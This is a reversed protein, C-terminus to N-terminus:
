ATAARVPSRPPVGALTRAIIYGFTMNAGNNAGNAPPLGAWMSNSDLGCAYLGPIPENQQDLVEGTVSTRMGLTSSIEGAIIELAYFPGNEIPALNPHPKNSHDGLYRDFGGDGKGMPDGQGARAAANAAEVTKLLNTENIGITSALAVLTPARQVYGQRVLRKLRIGHPYILGLGWKHIFKADCIIWAPLSGTERMKQGVFLTAENTFREGNRNIVIVGPRGLDIIHPVPEITGDKQRYRSLVTWVANDANDSQLTAGARSGINIGDGTNGDPVLPMTQEVRPYYQKRMMENAAFGGTALVVGRRASVRINRGGHRVIAGTVAADQHILDVVPSETWLTVGADIASKLFRAVLANGMFLRTGRGYLIKDSAHRAFLKLMHLASKMSRNAAMGHQIDPMSVMMGWPANFQELPPRLKQLTDRSLERGDFGVPTFARGAKSGGPLEPFYDPGPRVMMQVDTNALMFDIMEPGNALFAEALDPRLRNGVVAKLYDKAAELSDSAGIAGMQHNNPIWCGGGSWATIGGFYQTKEVLLVKLGRKAAVIATTMGASGSGAVIVDVEMNESDGLTM